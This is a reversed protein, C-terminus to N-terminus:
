LYGLSKLREIEAPDLGGAQIEQILAKFKESQEPFRQDGDILIDLASSAGDGGSDKLYTAIALYLAANSQEPYEGSLRKLTTRAAEGEGSRALAELRIRELSWTLRKDSAPAQKLARSSIERAQSFNGVSLAQQAESKMEEVGPGCGILFLLGIVPTLRIALRVKM